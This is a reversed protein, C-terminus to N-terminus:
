SIQAWTEIIKHTKTINIDKHVNLENVTYNTRSIYVKNKLGKAYEGSVCEDIKPFTNKDPKDEKSLTDPLVHHFINELRSM